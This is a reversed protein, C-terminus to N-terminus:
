DFRYGISVGVTQPARFNATRAGLGTVLYSQNVVDDGDPDEINRIWGDLHWKKNAPRYSVQFSTESWSEQVDVDYGFQRLDTDDEWHVLISPILSDGNQLQFSYNFGLNLALKPTLPLSRGSVDAPAAGGPLTADVLMSGDDYESDNYALSFFLQSNDSTAFNIDTEFGHIKADVNEVINGGGFFVVEQHDDYDYLYLASNIRLRNDLFESKHGVEIAFVEENEFRSENVGALSASIADVFGGAKYGTGVNAYILHTDDADYQLTLQWDTSDWGAADSGVTRPIPTGFRTGERTSNREEKEDDSHRLGIGIRFSENVHYTLNGFVAQSTSNFDPISSVFNIPGLNVDVERTSDEDFYYLGLMWDLRGGDESSLRLEHSTQEGSLGQAGVQTRTATGDFDFKRYSDGDFAAGLYTLLFKDMEYNAELWFMEQDDTWFPETNLSSKYPDAGTAMPIPRVAALGGDSQFTSYGFLLSFDDTPEYLAQLRVASDDLASGYHDNSVSGAEAFSDRQRYNAAIRVALKDEIVELNAVGTYDGYSYNGFKTDVSGNTDFEPQNFIVNIAGGTANRGYLIGQPGKLVEVRANDFFSSRLASPRGIYVGNFHTAVAPDGTPLQNNSTIGRLAVFPSATDDISLGPVLARIDSLKLVGAREMAEAPMATVSAALDQLSQEKKQATVIIEDLASPSGEALTMGVTGTAILSLFVSLGTERFKNM